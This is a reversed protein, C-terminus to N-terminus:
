EEPSLRGTAATLRRLRNALNGDPESQMRWTWNGTPMGPTNMRAESALGLLDQMPVVSWGARSTHALRMFDWAGPYERGTYTRALRRHETPASSFWGTTTDNDHTGTYVVWNEDEYNHPLFPNESHSFGFQLVKMGPLGLKKRLARVEDTIDGLDEAILPLEGLSSRLKEFLGAGPGKIWKGSKATEDSAPVEWYAEFGRFHDLRLVDCQTLAMKIRAVWWEYGDERMADWRYLPNGWLQGEESFYDPPVGAVVTPHGARDLFFKERNAWVDASDHSIFIPVDGVIYIGAENAQRKVEGWDRFFRHQVFEWFGIEQAFEKRAGLLAAAERFALGEPWVSWDGGYEEQLAMYLSYDSLWGRQEQRFAEFDQGSRQGELWRSYAERLRAMKEPVVREYDVPGPAAVPVDELLGDAVLRGTSVLMPNGAFASPSSYPSGAGDTPGLPLVQWIGQGAEVLFEVFRFAEEGFEGCGYAGSLSTPHLLVGSRRGSLSM